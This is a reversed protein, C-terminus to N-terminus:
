LAGTLAAFGWIALSAAVAAVIVGLATANSTKVDFAQGSDWVLHRIGNALHYSIALTVAFLVAQGPPSGLLARYTAFTDPGSALAVMWGALALAAGYLVIGTARHLISTLMTVHWRWVQLHPSLPRETVPTTLQPGQGDIGM